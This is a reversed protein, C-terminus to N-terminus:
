FVKHLKSLYNEVVSRLFKKGEREPTFEIEDLEEDPQGAFRVALIIDDIIDKSTDIWRSVELLTSLNYERSIKYQDTEYHDILEFDPTCYPAFDNKIASSSYNKSNDELEIGYLFVCDFREDPMALSIDHGIQYQSSFTIGQIGHNELIANMMNMRSDSVASINFKIDDIGLYKAVLPTWLMTYNNPFKTWEYNLGWEENAPKSDDFSHVILVNTYGRLKCMNIFFLCHNIAEEYRNDKRAGLFWSTDILDGLNNEEQVSQCYTLYHWFEQTLHTNISGVLAPGIVKATHRDASHRETVVYRSYDVDGQM